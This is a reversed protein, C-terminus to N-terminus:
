RVTKVKEPVNKSLGELIDLLASEVVIRRRFCELKRIEKEDGLSSGAIELV